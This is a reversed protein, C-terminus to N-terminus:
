DEADRCTRPRKELGAQERPGALQAHAGLPQHRWPAVRAVLGDPREHPPPEAGFRGDIKGLRQERANMGAVHITQRDTRKEV